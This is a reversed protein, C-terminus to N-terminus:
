VYISISGSSAQVNQTAQTNKALMDALAKEAQAAQKILLAGLENQFRMQSYQVATNIATIESMSMAEKDTAEM